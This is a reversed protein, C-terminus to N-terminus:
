DNGNTGNGGARQLRKRLDQTTYQGGTGAGMGTQGNDGTVSGLAYEGQAGGSLNLESNEATNELLQLFQQFKDDVPLEGGEGGSGSVTPRPSKQPATREKYAALCRLVYPRIHPVGAANLANERWVGGTEHWYDWMFWYKNGGYNPWKEPSIPTSASQKLGGELVGYENIQWPKRNNYEKGGDYSNLRLTIERIWDEFCASGEPTEWPTKPQDAGFTIGTFLMAIVGVLSIMKVLKM